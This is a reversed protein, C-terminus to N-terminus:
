GNIAKGVGVYFNGRAPSGSPGWVEISYMVGRHIDFRESGEPKVVRYGADDGGPLHSSNPGAKLQIRHIQPARGTAEIEWVPGAPALLRVRRISTPYEGLTQVDLTVSDGLTQIQLPPRGCGVTLSLAGLTVWIGRRIKRGGLSGAEAALGCASTRQLGINPRLSTM